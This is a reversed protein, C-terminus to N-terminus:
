KSEWYYGGFGSVFFGRGTEDAFVQLNLALWVVAFLAIYQMVTKM